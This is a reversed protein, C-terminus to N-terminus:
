KSATGMQLIEVWFRFKSESRIKAVVFKWVYSVIDISNM